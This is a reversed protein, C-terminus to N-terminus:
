ESEEAQLAARAISRLGTHHGHVWAAEKVEPDNSIDADCITELAGRLREIQAALSAIQKDRKLIEVAEFTSFLGM